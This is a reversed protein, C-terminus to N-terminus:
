EQSFNNRFITIAENLLKIVNESKSAYSSTIEVKTMNEYKELMNFEIGTTIGVLEFNSNIIAGGSNGPVASISTKIFGKRNLGTRGLFYKETNIKDTDDINLANGTLIYIKPWSYGLLFLLENEAINLEKTLTIYPHNKGPVKIIVIDNPYDESLYTSVNKGEHSTSFIFNKEQCICEKNKPKLVYKGIYKNIGNLLSYEVTIKKLMLYSFSFKEMSCYENVIYQPGIAHSSVIIYGNSDVMTGTGSYQRDEEQDEEPLPGFFINRSYFSLDSEISINVKLYYITKLLNSNNQTAKDNTEALVTSYSCLLILFFAFIIKKM